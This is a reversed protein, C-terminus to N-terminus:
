MHEIQALDRAPMAGDTILVINKANLNLARDLSETLAVCSEAGSQAKKVKEIADMKHEPTAWMAGHGGSFTARDSFLVLVFSQPEPGSALGNIGKTLRGRIRALPPAM